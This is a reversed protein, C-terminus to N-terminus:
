SHLVHREFLQDIDKRSIVNIKSNWDKYLPGLQEFQQQQRETLDPYYKRIQQM